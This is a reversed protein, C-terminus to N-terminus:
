LDACDRHVAGKHDWDCKAKAPVVFVQGQRDDNERAVAVFDDELVSGFLEPVANSAAQQLDHLPCSVHNVMDCWLLHRLGDLAHGRRGTHSGLRVSNRVGPRSRAFQSSDHSPADGRRRHRRAKSRQLHFHEISRDRDTPRRRSRLERPAAPAAAVNRPGDALVACCPDGRTLGIGEVPSASGTTPRPLQIVKLTPSSGTARSAQASTMRAKKSAPPRM